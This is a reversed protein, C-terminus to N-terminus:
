GGTTRVVINSCVKPTKTYRNLARFKDQAKFGQWDLPVFEEPLLPNKFLIEQYEVELIKLEEVSVKKRKFKAIFDTAKSIFKQYDENIKKLPWIREAFLRLDSVGIDKTKLIYICDLLGLREALQEAKNLLDNPSIWVSQQLKGFGLNLLRKRYADRTNRKQEPIDFIVLRWWGDWKKKTIPIRYLSALVIVNKGKETPKYVIEGKKEFKDIEGLEEMRRLTSRVSNRMSPGYIDRFFGRTPMIGREFLETIFILIEQKLTLKM